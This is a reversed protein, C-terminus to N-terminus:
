ACQPDAKRHELWSGSEIIQRNSYTHPLVYTQARTGDALTIATRRYFRPHGELRDLAALTDADVDYLEGAVSQQGGDLMGPFGGLSVFTFHPETRATRLLRANALFWHNGQGSLLTGYVFVKM